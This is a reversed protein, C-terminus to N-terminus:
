VVVRKILPNIRTVFEYNITGIRDALSDATIEASGQRGLLVVEDEVTVEECDTVDVVTMNMFVRGLVKCRQGKILVEGVRSLKRDYGDWYGIPLVAIRSDREVRETCGYGV